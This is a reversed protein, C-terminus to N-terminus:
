YSQSEKTRLDRCTFVYVYYFLIWRVEHNKRFCIYKLTITTAIFRTTGILM